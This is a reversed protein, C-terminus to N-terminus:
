ISTPYPPQSPGNIQCIIELSSSKENGFRVIGMGFAATAVMIQADSSKRRHVVTPSHWRYKDKTSYATDQRVIGNFWFNVIITFVHEHFVHRQLSVIQLSAIAAYSKAATM